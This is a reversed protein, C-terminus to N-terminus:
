WNSVLGSVQQKATALGEARAEDGLNSGECNVFTIDTFGIFGFIARLYPEQFDYAAFPAGEHYVNGRATIVLLKKGQVLGQMDMTFTRNVRVIQDIYAKLTSPIHLNFMPASIVLRDAALLEDVLADSVAMAETAAASRREPPNFAGEVWAETVHPVPEHGLDRYVITDDPNAKQWGELFESALQRSLSRDGRPSSDIHLITAM